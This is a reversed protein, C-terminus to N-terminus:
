NQSADVAPEDEVATRAKELEAAVNLAAELTQRALVDATVNVSGQEFAERSWNVLMFAAAFVHAPGIPGDGTIQRTVSDLGRALVVADTFIQKSIESDETEDGQAPISKDNEDSM